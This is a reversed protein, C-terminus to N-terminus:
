KKGVKSEGIKNLEAAAMAAVKEMEVLDSYRVNVYRLESTFYPDANTETVEMLVRVNVRKENDPAPM